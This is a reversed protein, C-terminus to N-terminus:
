PQYSQWFVNNKAWEIINKTDAFRDTSQAVVSILYHGNLNILAIFSGESEPTWGTKLGEIEPIVGLLENTSILEHKITKNVDEVVIEKQKVTDLVIQSKIALRAIQSLDYVTSYHNENHIGDFNTFNTNKLGYKKNILNMEEIFGSLGKQHHNALTYAADNASYVLLATVLSRINIKEDLKLEMIKGERYEQKIRLEEDLPYINLATLATSLKTTSAPYIKSNPNQSLIVTNTAVDLLIYHKTNLKPKESLKSYIKDPHQYQILSSNQSFLFNKPYINWFSFTPLWFLNLFCILFVLITEFPKRKLISM